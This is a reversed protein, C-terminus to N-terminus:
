YKVRFQDLLNEFSKEFQILEIGVSKRSEYRAPGFELYTSQVSPHSM